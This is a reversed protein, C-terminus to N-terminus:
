TFLIRRQDYASAHILRKIVHVDHLVDDLLINRWTGFRGLSYINHQASLEYMMRKRWRDDIGVIKGFAQTTKEIPTAWRPDIGFASWFEYDDPVGRYEAIVLDGTISVRYLTTHKSPFYVTQHVDCETVRWRQVAIAEHRFMPVDPVELMRLLVSMPMTSIIPASQHARITERTVPTNWRIRGACREALQDMLDDPAIYREVADLHWISRDTTMGVVKQAYWNALQITPAVFAGDHWLGKRVTVKRFPIGVAESVANSRFRLVAKHQTSGEPAAEYITATQFLNGALLGALGAGYIHIM